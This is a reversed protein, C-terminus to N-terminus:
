RLWKFAVLLRLDGKYTDMLVKKESLRKNEFSSLMKIKFLRNKLERLPIKTVEYIFRVVDAVEDEEIINAGPIGDWVKLYKFAKSMAIYYASFPMEYYEYFVGLVDIWNWKHYEALCEHMIPHLIRSGELFCGEFHREYNLKSITRLYLLLAKEDDQLRKKLREYRWLFLNKASDCGLYKIPPFEWHRREDTEPAMFMIEFYLWPSVGLSMCVEGVRVFLKRVNLNQLRYNPRKNTVAKVHESYLDTIERVSSYTDTKKRSALSAALNIYKTSKEM